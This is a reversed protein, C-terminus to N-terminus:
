VEDPLKSEPGVTSIFERLMGDVITCILIKVRLMELVSAFFSSMEDLKYIMVPWPQSGSTNYYVFSDDEQRKKGREQIM